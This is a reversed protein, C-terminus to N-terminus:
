RFYRLHHRIRSFSGPGCSRGLPARPTSICIMVEIFGIVICGNRMFVLDFWGFGESSCSQTFLLILPLFAASSNTTPTSRARSLRKPAGNGRCDGSQLCYRRIMASHTSEFTVQVACILVAVDDGVVVPLVPCRLLFENTELVSIRIIALNTSGHRTIM